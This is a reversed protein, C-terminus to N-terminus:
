RPIAKTILYHPHQHKLMVWNNSNNSSNNFTIEIYDRLSLYWCILMIIKNKSNNDIKTVRGRNERKM